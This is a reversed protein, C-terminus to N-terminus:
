ALAEKKFFLLSFSRNVAPQPVQTALVQLLYFNKQQKKKL